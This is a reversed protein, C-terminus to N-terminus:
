LHKDLNKFNPDCISWNPFFSRDQLFVDVEAQPMEGIDGYKGPPLLREADIHRFTKKAAGANDDIIYKKNPLTNLFGAMQKSPSSTLLAFCSEGHNIIKIADFIGEVIFLPAGVYYSFAGYYILSDKTKYTYYKAKWTKDNKKSARFGKEGNPYYRQYGTLQGSLNYLFFYAYKELNLVHYDSMRTKELGRSRLHKYLQTMNLEPKM